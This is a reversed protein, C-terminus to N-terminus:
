EGCWRGEQVGGAVGVGGAISGVGGAVCSAAGTGDSADSVGSKDLMESSIVEVEGLQLNTDLRHQSNEIPVQLMGEATVILVAEPANLGHEALAAVNPEFLVCEGQSFPKASQVEM